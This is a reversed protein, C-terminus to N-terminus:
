PNLKPKPAELAELPGLRRRMEAELQLNRIRRVADVKQAHQARFSAALQSPAVQEIKAILDAMEAESVIPRGDIPYDALFRSFVRNNLVDSAVHFAIPSALYVAGLMTAIAEIDARQQGLEGLIAAQQEAILTAASLIDALVGEDRDGSM